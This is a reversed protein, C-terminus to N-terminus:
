QFQTDEINVNHNVGNHPVTLVNFIDQTHLTCPYHYRFSYRSYHYMITFLSDLTPYIQLLSVMSHGPVVNFYMQLSSVETNFVYM